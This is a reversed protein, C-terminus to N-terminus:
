PHEEFLSLSLSPLPRPHLLPVGESDMFTWTGYGREHQFRLARAVSTSHAEGIVGPNLKAIQGSPELWKKWGAPGYVYDGDFWWQCFDWDFREMQEVPTWPEALKIIQVDCALGTAASPLTTVESIPISGDEYETWSSSIASKIGMDSLLHEINFRPSVFIDIDKPKRNLMTDRLFGGALIAFPDRTIIDDCIERVYYPLDTYTAVRVFAKETM